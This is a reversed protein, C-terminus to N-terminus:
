KLDGACFPLHVKRSRSRSRSRGGRPLRTPMPRGRQCLKRQGRSVRSSVNEPPTRLGPCGRRERARAASERMPQWIETLSTSGGTGQMPAGFAAGVPASLLTISQPSTRLEEGVLTAFATYTGQGMEVKFAQVLIEGSPTIALWADFAEADPHDTQNPWQRSHTTSCGLVLSGVAVGSHRLFDRRTVPSM